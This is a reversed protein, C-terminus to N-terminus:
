RRDVVVAHGLVESGQPQVLWRVAVQFARGDAKLHM